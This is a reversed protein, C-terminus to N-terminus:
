NVLAFVVANNENILVLATAPTHTDTAARIFFYIVVPLRTFCFFTNKTIGSNFSSLRRNARFGTHATNSIQANNQVICVTNSFSCAGFVFVIQVLSLQIDKQIWVIRVYNSLCSCIADCIRPKLTGFITGNVFHGNIPFHCQWQM